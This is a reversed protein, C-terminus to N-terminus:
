PVIENQIICKEDNLRQVKQRYASDQVPDVRHISFPSIMMNNVQVSSAQLIIVSSM